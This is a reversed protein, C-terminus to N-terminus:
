VDEASPVDLDGTYNTVDILQRSHGISGTTTHSEAAEVPLERIRNEPITRTASHQIGIVGLSKLLADRYEHAINLYEERDIRKESSPDPNTM